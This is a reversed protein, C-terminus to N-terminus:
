SYGQTATSCVVPDGQRLGARRKVACAAQPTYHYKREGYRIFTFRPTDDACEHAKRAWRVPGDWHDCVREHNKLKVESCIFRDLLHFDWCMSCRLMGGIQARLEQARRDRRLRIGLDKRESNYYIRGLKIYGTRRCCHAFSLIDAPNTLYSSIEDILEDPLHCLPTSLNHQHSWYNQYTICVRSM